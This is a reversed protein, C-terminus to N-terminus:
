AGKDGLSQLEPFHSTKALQDRLVRRARSLRSRVTGIPIGLAESVEAYSLDAWAVLLLVDREGSSLTAVAAAVADASRAADVRAVTEEAGPEIASPRDVQALSRLRQRETRWHRRMLNTATGLLWPRASARSVDYRRRSKFAEFFVDATLDGAADPGVRRALYSHVAEFHREFIEAFAQPEELSRAIVQPDSLSDM